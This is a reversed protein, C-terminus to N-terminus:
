QHPFLALMEVLPNSSGKKDMKKASGMLQISQKRDHLCVYIYKCWALNVQM